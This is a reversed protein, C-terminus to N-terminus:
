SKPEDQIAAIAACAEGIDPLDPPTAMGAIQLLKAWNPDQQLLAKGILDIAHLEDEELHWNTAINQFRRRCAEDHIADFDISILATNDAIQNGPLQRFRENLLTRLQVSTGGTARDIPADISALAMDVIGPTAAQEDLANTKFSRANIVVFILHKVAGADIAPLLQPDTDQTTLMRYPEFVGLNDAIGGDLLHIYKKLMVGEPAGGQSGRAYANEVRAVTLRTQDNEYFGTASNLPLTVWAPPWAGNAALAETAPCPTHNTLTVPSLAIPFAASSAVATALPFQALDSCLLDFKRQTFPFPVGEVMDAANLILLPHPKGDLLAAYTLDHFLQKNLYDILLDIRERGPTSLQALSVPNLGLYLPKMGDQSIFNNYLDDFGDRGKLAFYAATVSGGSVSSIVDIENTLQQGNPATVQDLGRLVALELAAARTGGGSATVIVLTDDWSGRNINDWRYGAAANIEDIPANRTPYACGALGAALVLILMSGGLRGRAIM